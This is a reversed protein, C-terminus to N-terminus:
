GIIRIMVNQGLHHHTDVVSSNGIKLAIVGEDRSVQDVNIRFCKMGRFERQSIGKFDTHTVKGLM